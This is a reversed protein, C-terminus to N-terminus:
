SIIFSDIESTLVPTQEIDMDWDEDYIEVWFRVERDSDFGTSTFLESNQWLNKSGWAKYMNGRGSMALRSGNYVEINYIIEYSSPCNVIEAYFDVTDDTGPSLPEHYVSKIELDGGEEDSSPTWLIFITRAIILIVIVSIAIYITPSRKGEKQTPPQTAMPQAPHQYQRYFQPQQPAQIRAQGYFNGFPFLFKPHHGKM